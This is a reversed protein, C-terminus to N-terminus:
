FQFTICVWKFFEALVCIYTQTYIHTHIYIYNEHFILIGCECGIGNGEWLCSSNVISTHIRSANESNTAYTHVCTYTANIKCLYSAYVYMHICYWEAAQREYLVLEPLDEWAPICLKVKNEKM